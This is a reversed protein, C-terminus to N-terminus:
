RRPKSKKEQEDISRLSTRSGKIATSSKHTQPKEKPSSMNKLNTSGTKKSIPKLPYEDDSSSQLNDEVDASLSNEKTKPTFQIYSKAICIALGIAIIISCIFITAQLTVKWKLWILDTHVIPSDTLETSENTANNDGSVFMTGIGIILFIIKM